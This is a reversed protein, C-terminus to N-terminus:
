FFVHRNIYANNFVGNEHRKVFDNYGAGIPLKETTRKLCAMSEAIGDERWIREVQVAGQPTGIYIRTKM